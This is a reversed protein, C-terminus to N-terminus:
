DHVLKPRSMDLQVRGDSGERTPRIRSEKRAEDWCKLAPVRSLSSNLKDASPSRMTMSMLMGDRSMNEDRWGESIVDEEHASSKTARGTARTLMGEPRECQLYLGGM